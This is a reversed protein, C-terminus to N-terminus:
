GEHTSSPLPISFRIGRPTNWIRWSEFNSSQFWGPAECRRVTATTNLNSFANPCIGRGVPSPPGRWRAPHPTGCRNFCNQENTGRVRRKAAGEGTPLPIRLYMGRIKFILQFACEVTYRGEGGVGVVTRINRPARQSCMQCREKGKRDKRM